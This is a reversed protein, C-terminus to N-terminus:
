LVSHPSPSFSLTASCQQEALRCECFGSAKTRVDFEQKKGLREMHVSDNYSEEKTNSPLAMWDPATGGHKHDQVPQLEIGTAEAEHKAM